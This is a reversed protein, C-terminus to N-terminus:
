LFDKIWENITYPATDTPAFPARLFDPLEDLPRGDLLFVNQASFIKEEKVCANSTIVKRGMFLGELTRQTLGGQGQTPIDLVARAGLINQCNEQASIRQGSFKLAKEEKPSSSDRLVFFKCSLGMASFKQYLENLREYRGRDFGVFYVDCASAAGCTKPPLACVTNKYKLGYKQADSKDFTYVDFNEKLELLWKQDEQNLVTDWIWKFRKRARCMKFFPFAIRPSICIGSGFVLISDSEKITKVVRKFEKTFNLALPVGLKYGLHLALRAFKNRFLFLERGAPVIQVSPNQLQKLVLPACQNSDVENYFVYLM